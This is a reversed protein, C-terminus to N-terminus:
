AVCALAIAYPIATLNGNTDAALPFPEQYFFEPM